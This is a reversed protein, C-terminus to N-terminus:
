SLLEPLSQLLRRAEPWGAEVFIAICDILKRRREAEDFLQRQDALFVGVLEVFHPAGLPEHEYKAIGSPRLLMDAVLDFTMAPAAEVFGELMQLLHHVGRPTCIAGLATITPAIDSLFQRQGEHSVISMAEKRGAAGTAFYLEDAVSDVLKVLAVEDPSPEGGRTLWAEIAPICAVTLALAYAQAKSRAKTRGDAAAVDPEDYGGAIVDRVQLLLHRLRQEHTAPSSLWSGVLAEAEAMEKMFALHALLHLLNSEDRAGAELRALVQLLIALTRPGDVSVLRQLTAGLSRLLAPNPENAAVADVLRWTADADVHVLRGLASVFQYRVAPHPDRLALQEVVGEIVPWDTKSGMMGALASALQVRPSPSDWSQTGAFREEVDAGGVPFPHASL